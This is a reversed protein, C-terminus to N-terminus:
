VVDPSVDNVPARAVKVLATRLVITDIMYGTRYVETVTGDPVEATEEIDVANMQHPDFPKGVCELANVGLQQLAEDIRDLGLRYGKELSRVVELLNNKDATKGFFFRGGSIKELRFMKRREDFQRRSEDASRQGLIMHDRIDIVVGLLDNRASRGAERKIESERRTRDARSEEVICRSESLLERQSALLRDLSGAELGAFSDLKDSLQKFARGQLKVEQTLVTLASGTSHLDHAEEAPRAADPDREDYLEALLEAAIGKLPKEEALVEELWEAFRQVLLTRLAEKTKAEAFHDNLTSIEIPPKQDKLDM